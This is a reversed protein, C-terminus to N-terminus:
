LLHLRYRIISNALLYLKHFGNLRIRDQMLNEPKKKKIKRYLEYYYRYALYVGLAIRKDLKRIGPLAEQFDRGIDEEIQKKAAEDFNDIQLGPFYTRGREEKDPRIDRLFNVKQFAEGLKKASPKLEEYFERNEPYFVALCMLGVVEASGYVYRKFEKAHYNSNTLDMQMSAFFSHILDHDIKFMNVAWQFSHLVPNSSIGREIAKETDRMFEELLLKKNYNHFTDVIEDAMRVFGYVAYIAEREKANLFRMGASFSTSYSEAIIKSISISTIRYLEM